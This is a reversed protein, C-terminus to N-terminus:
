LLHFQHGRGDIFHGIAHLIHGLVGFMGGTFHAVGFGLGLLALLVDVAAQLLDIGQGRGDILRHFDNAGQGGFARLNATNQFHDAGDGFLGIQQGQIRGDLRGAGPFM